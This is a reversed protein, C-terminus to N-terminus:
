ASPVAPPSVTKGSGLWFFAVRKRQGSGQESGPRDREARSCACGALASAKASALAHCAITSALPPLRGRLLLAGVELPPTGCVIAGAAVPLRGIAADPLRGM